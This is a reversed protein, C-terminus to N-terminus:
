HCEWSKNKIQQITKIKTTNYSNDLWRSSNTTSLYPRRTKNYRNHVFLGTYKLGDINLMSAGPALLGWMDTM